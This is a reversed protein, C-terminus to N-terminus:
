PNCLFYPKITKKGVPQRDLLKTQSDSRYHSPTMFHHKTIFNILTLLASVLTQIM